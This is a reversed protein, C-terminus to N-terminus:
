QSPMTYTTTVHHSWSRCGHVTTCIINIKYVWCPSTLTTFFITPCETHVLCCECLTASYRLIACICKSCGSRAHSRILWSAFFCTLEIVMERALHKFALCWFCDTWSAIANIGTALAIVVTRLSGRTRAELVQLQHTSIYGRTDQPWIM